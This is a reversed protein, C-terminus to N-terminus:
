VTIYNINRTASEGPLTRPLRNFFRFGNPGAGGCRLTRDETQVPTKVRIRDAAAVDGNAHANARRCSRAVGMVFALLRKNKQNIASMADIETGM